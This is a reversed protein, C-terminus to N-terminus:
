KGRPMNDVRKSSEVLDLLIGQLKQKTELRAFVKREVPTGSLHIVSMARKQSVRNIRANAQEYIENSNFATWWVITAAKTLTLGHSMCAPQAVLIQPHDTNQFGNFIRNREPLSTDGSIGDVSYTKSLRKVLFDINGKFPVFVIVKAPAEEIVAQLAAFRPACDMHQHTGKEDYVVGSAVQLLRMLLVGENVATVTGNNVKAVCDKLLQKYAVSQAPTMPVDQTTYTCDPLDLCEDRSYRIAPQMVQHVTQMADDKPVWKFMNLPRMTADKFSRMSYFHRAELAEPRILRVQAYADTPANPTPAGSVGWVWHQPKIIARHAKWRQTGPTRLVACEDIVILDIDNRKEIASQVVQVGDHNILYFDFDHKLLERRTNASGHLTTFTRQSEGLFNQFITSGHTENLTSLPAIILARRILGERMLFDAAWYVSLTKGTNGSVFVRGNRRFILFGTPVEFCYKFGDLTREESVPTTKSGDAKTGTLKVPRAHPQVHVVFEIEEGGRRVRVSRLKTAAHGTSVAAYQVFDASKEIYSSFSYAGSKRESGDWHRAEDYVIQLQAPSANWFRRDFYKLHLPAQFVFVSFGKASAYEPATEVYGVCADDLLRRLREKKRQKKLRVVCRRTKNPFHGDAIVAIQLRLAEDSLSLGARVPAGFTTLFRGRWGTANVRQAQAVQVATTVMPTGKDTVYLVRHEESLKQDIGYKNKFRYMWECPKKVYASPTVFEAQKTEVRYQAVDGGDYQDIRRWGTPSLYETEADVCGLDNLCFARRNLTLFASTLRQHVMPTFRGPWNYNTLIPSPARYGLNRLIISSDVTHPLVAYDKWPVVKPFVSQLRGLEAKPMLLLRNPVSVLM